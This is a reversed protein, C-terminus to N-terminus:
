DDFIDMLNNPQGELMERVLEIPWVRGLQADNPDNTHCRGSYVGVLRSFGDGNGRGRGFRGDELEVEGHERQIVPSGSMGPRSASDVLMNDSPILKSLYPETAFSAKKWVPFGLHQYGFPFGIIYASLGVRQKLSVEPLANLAIYNAVNMEPVDIEIAAIDVDQGYKMHEIWAPDNNEFLEIDVTIHGQKVDLKQFYVTLTDPLGGKAHLCMNNEQNKGTIVHWNTVLYHKDKVLWLFGTANSLTNGRCKTELYFATSSFADIGRFLFNNGAKALNSIDSYQDRRM